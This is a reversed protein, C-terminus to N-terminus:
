LMANLSRRTSATRFASISAPPAPSRIVLTANPSRRSLHASCVSDHKWRSRLTSIRKATGPEGEALTRVGGPPEPAGCRHRLAASAQMREAAAARLQPPRRHWLEGLLHIILILTTAIAAM